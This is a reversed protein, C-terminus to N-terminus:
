DLLVNKDSTPFRVDATNWSTTRKGSSNATANSNSTSNSSLRRKGSCSSPSVMCAGFCEDSYKNCGGMTGSASCCSCLACHAKACMACSGSFSSGANTPSKGACMGCTKPCYRQITDGHVANQCYRAVQACSTVGNNTVGNSYLESNSADTCSASWRTACVGCTKPCMRQISDGLKANQCYRAVQVCSLTVGKNTKGSNSADTCAAGPGTFARVIRPTLGDCCYADIHGREALQCCCHQLMRGLVHRLQLLQPPFPLRVVAVVVGEGVTM